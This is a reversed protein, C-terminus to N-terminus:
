LNLMIRCEELISYIHSLYFPGVPSLEMHPHEEQEMELIMQIWEM